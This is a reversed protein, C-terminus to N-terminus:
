RDPVFEYKIHLHLVGPVIEPNVERARLKLAGGSAAIPLRLSVQDLRLVEIPNIRRDIASQVVKVLPGSTVSPVNNLHIELVQARAILAQRTKDFELNLRTDAWGSLQLCGVLPADYSGSFALPAVVKGQEFRVATKVGNNERELVLEGLCAKDGSQRNAREKDAATIALPVSPAKLNTYLAELFANFFQEDLTITAVGTPPSPAPGQGYAASVLLLAVVVAILIKTLCTKRPM